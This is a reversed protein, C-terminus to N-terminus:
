RHDVHESLDVSHRDRDKGITFVVFGIGGVGVISRGLRMGPGPWSGVLQPHGPGGKKRGPGVRIGARGARGSQGGPPPWSLGYGRVKNATLLPRLRIPRPGSRDVWARM